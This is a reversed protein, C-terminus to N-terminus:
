RAAVNAPPLTRYTADIHDILEFLADGYASADLSDYGTRNVFFTGEQCEREWGAIFDFPTGQDNKERCERLGSTKHRFCCRGSPYVYIMPRLNVDTDTTYADSVLNTALLTDAGQTYGHLMVVLPYRANANEPVDYGPPLAIGYDRPAGLVSSQYVEVRQRESASSGGLPTKPRELSPWTVASWNQMAFIRALAQDNTGVHDGEGQVRDDDTPQEKGYMVVGDQPVFKWRANWPSFAGSNPNKMGPIEAFDRYVPVAASRLASLFGFSLFSQLGLNFVDRIGGDAWFKVRALSAPPLTKFLRKLDADLLRQRGPSLDFRGNNEGFDLTNPVGDLGDDRYPEGDDHVFNGETGRPNKWGDYDDHNLDGQGPVAVALCGGRGDERVNPCGDSGVDDFREQGNNVLPEGYDRRGNGNYDFALAVRMPRTHERCPDVVGAHDLMYLPDNAVTAETFGGQTACFQTAYAREGSLPLPSAINARDACFDVPTKTDRCFYLTPQGDCFTIADYTGSPNYEANYVKQVRVPNRCFDHPPHRVVEPEVGIPSFGTGPSNTLFNGYALSLDMFLDSYTDRDFSMGNTTYAWHNFDQAREWTLRAPPVRCADIAAPDNLLTKDQALLQELAARSCFGGAAFQDVMRFFYPADLPGGLAAIADFKEPHAAFLAAAGTAGMSIGAIVRYTTPILPKPDPAKGCTAGLAACVLLTLGRFLVSNRISGSTVTM